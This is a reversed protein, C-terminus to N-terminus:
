IPYIDTHHNYVISTINHLTISPCWLHRICCKVHFLILVTYFFLFKFILCLSLRVALLAALKLAALIMENQENMLDRELLREREESDKELNDIHDEFREKMKQQTIIQRWALMANDKGRKKESQQLDFLTDETDELKNSQSELSTELKTKEQKLESVAAELGSILSESEVQLQAIQKNMDEELKGREVIVRRDAIEKYKVEVSDLTDAQEESLEKLAIKKAKEFKLNMLNLQADHEKQAAHAEQRNLAEMRAIIEENQTNKTQLDNREQAMQQSQAAVDSKFNDLRGEQKELKKQWLENADKWTEDIAEAVREKLENGLMEETMAKTKMLAEQKLREQEKEQLLLEHQHETHLHAKEKEFDEQLKLIAMKQSNDQDGMLEKDEKKQEARGEAKAKSTELEFRHEADKLAQRWKSSELKVARVREFEVSKAYTEMKEGLLKENATDRDVLEQVKEEEWLDKLERVRAEQDKFNQKNSDEIMDEYSEKVQNEAEEREALLRKELDHRQATLLALQQEVAQRQEKAAKELLTEREMGSEKASKKKELTHEAMLEVMSKNHSDEFEKLQTKLRTIMQDAMEKQTNADKVRRDSDELASDLDAQCRTSFDDMKVEAQETARATNREGDMRAEEVAAVWKEETAQMEVRMEEGLSDLAADKDAREEDRIQDATRAFEERLEADRQSQVALMEEQQTQLAEEKEKQKEDVTDDVLDNVHSRFQKAVGVLTANTCWKRLASSLRQRQWRQLNKVISMAGAKLEAARREAQFENRSVLTKQQSESNINYQAALDEKFKHLESQRRSDQEDMTSKLAEIERQHNTDTEEEQDRMRNLESKTLEFQEQLRRNVSLANEM